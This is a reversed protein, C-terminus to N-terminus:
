VLHGLFPWTHAPLCSGARVGCGPRCSPHPRWRVPRPPTQEPGPTLPISPPGPMHEASGRGPLALRARGTARPPSPLSRRCAPRRRERPAECTTPLLLRLLIIKLVQLSIVSGNFCVYRTQHQLRGAPRSPLAAWGACCGRGESSGAAGEGSRTDESLDNSGPPCRPATAGGAGPRGAPPRCLVAGGPSRPGAREPCTGGGGPAAGTCM